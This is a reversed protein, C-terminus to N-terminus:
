SQGASRPPFGSFEGKRCQGTTVSIRGLDEQRQYYRLDRRRISITVGPADYITIREPTVRAIRHPGHIECVSPACVQMTQLDVIEHLEYDWSPVNAPYTGNRLEPHAESVIRGHLQCYLDFHLSDTAPATSSVAVTAHPRSVPNATVVSSTQSRGGVDNQIAAPSGCSTLAPFTGACSLLILWTAIRSRMSFM